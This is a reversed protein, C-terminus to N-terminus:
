RTAAGAHVVWGGGAVIDTYREIAAKPRRHQGHRPDPLEAHPNRM